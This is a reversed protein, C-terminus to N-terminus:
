GPPAAACAWSMPATTTATAATSFTPMARSTPRLHVPMGQFRPQELDFLRAQQDLLPLSVAMEHLPQRVPDNPAAAPPTPPAARLTSVLEGGRGWNEAPVDHVVVTIREQPSGGVRHVLRTIEAVLEQKQQLTRGELWNVTVVPM